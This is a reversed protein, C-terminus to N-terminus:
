LARWHDAQLVQDRVRRAVRKAEKRNRIEKKGQDKNEATRNQVDFCEHISLRPGQEYGWDAHYVANIKEENEARFRREERKVVDERGQANKYSVSSASSSRPIRDSGSSAELLIRCCNHKKGKRV